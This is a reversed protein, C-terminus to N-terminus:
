EGTLVAYIELLSGVKLVAALAEFTACFMKTKRRGWNSCAIQARAHTQTHTYTVNGDRDLSIAQRILTSLISDGVELLEYVRTEM